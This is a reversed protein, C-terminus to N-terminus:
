TQGLQSFGELASWFPGEVQHYVGTPMVSEAQPDEDMPLKRVHERVQSPNLDSKSAMAHWSSAQGKPVQLLHNQVVSFLLPHNCFLGWTDLVGAGLGSFLMSACPFTAGALSLTGEGM